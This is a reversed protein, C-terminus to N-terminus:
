PGAKITGWIDVADLTLYKRSASSSSRVIKVTHDGDALTGTSWLMVQYAAASAALNITAKKAGDLYVDAVGTTLGKMAIWDLRTGHFYVTASAGSTSSRRYSGWSAVTKNFDSWTGSYRIRPDAQEHRRCQGFDAATVTLRDVHVGGVYYSSVNQQMQAQPHWGQPEPWANSECFYTALGHQYLWDITTYNGYAGIQSVPVVSNVGRFYADIETGSAAPYDVTYYVPTSTPLGLSALASLSARAQAVGAAFGGDRALYHNTSDECWFFYDVGAAAAAKLETTTVARWTAGPVPLYRRIFDRGSARLARFFTPWVVSTKSYDVGYRTDVPPSTMADARAVEVGLLAVLMLTSLVVLAVLRRSASM